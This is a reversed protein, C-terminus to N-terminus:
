NNPKRKEYIVYTHTHKRSQPKQNKKTKIVSFNRTKKAKSNKEKRKLSKKKHTKEGCLSCSKQVFNDSISIKKKTKRCKWERKSVFFFTCVKTQFNTEYKSSIKISYYLFFFM